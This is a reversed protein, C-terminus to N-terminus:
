ILIKVFLTFPAFRVILFVSATSLLIHFVQMIFPDHTLSSLAFLFLHWLAPHGEYKANQFLQALSPADRSVMWAQLEDRWMEHHLIGFVSLLFYFGTIFYPFYQHISSLDTKASEKKFVAEHQRATGSQKKNYSPM